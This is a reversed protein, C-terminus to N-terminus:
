TTTVVATQPALMVWTKGPKFPLAHGKADQFTFRGTATARKWTGAVAHGDRYLTVKGSGVTQTLYSPQGNTDVTGDPTDTVHMVLVNDAAEVKGQYDSVPADNRMRVFRGGTWSFDTLGAEMVVSISKVKAGASVAASSKVFTLGIPQVAGLGTADKAIKTLDAHLNYTGTAVSSRFYDGGLASTDVVATKALDALPGGAGGSFVLGPRGFVPLLQADTSRVSRVPGVETPLTTHFVAILRTLGGEVQEVFVIDADSVGFQAVEFYTNDIKVALVPNKSPALGTLPDTAGPKVAPATTKATTTKSPAPASSVPPSSSVAPSSVPASSVVATTSPAPSKKSSCASLILVPIAVAALVRASRM